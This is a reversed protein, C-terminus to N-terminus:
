LTVKYGYQESCTYLKVKGGSVSGRLVPILIIDSASSSSVGTLSGQFADGKNLGTSPWDSGALTGIDSTSYGGGDKDVRVSFSYIPIGNNSISLQGGVYQADFQIQGNSCFNQVNQGGFKTIAEQTFSRFWVFVVVSLGVVLAVLLITAIVPSVGRKKM